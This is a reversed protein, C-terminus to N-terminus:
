SRPTHAVRYARAFRGALRATRYHSLNHAFPSRISRRIRAITPPSARTMEAQEDDPPPPEDAAADAAPAGDAAADPAPAGQASALPLPVTVTETFSKENSGDVMLALTPSVM